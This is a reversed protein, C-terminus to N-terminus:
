KIEKLVGPLINKFTFNFASPNELKVIKEAMKENVGILYYSYRKTLDLHKHIPHQNSLDFYTVLITSERGIKSLKNKWHELGKKHYARKELYIRSKNKNLYEKELDEWSSIHQQIKSIYEQIPDM